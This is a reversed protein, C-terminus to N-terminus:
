NETTTKEIHDVVITELPIKRQELKLGMKQVVHFMAATRSEPESAAGAAAGAGAPNMATMPIDLVVQFTGKLGTKDVVPMGGALSTLMDTLLPM